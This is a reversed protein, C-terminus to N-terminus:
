KLMRNIVDIRTKNYVKSFIKPFMRVITREKLNLGNLVESLVIDKTGKISLEEREYFDNNKNLLNYKSKIIDKGVNKKLIKENKEEVFKM